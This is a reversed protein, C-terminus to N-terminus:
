GKKQSDDLLAFREKKDLPRINEPSVSSKVTETHGSKASFIMVKVAASALGQVLEEGFGGNGLDLAFNVTEGLLQTVLDKGSPSLILDELELISDARAISTIRTYGRM